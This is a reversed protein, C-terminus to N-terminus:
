LSQKSSRWPGLRRGCEPGVGRNRAGTVRLVPDSAVREVEVGRAADENADVGVGTVPGEFDSARGAAVNADSDM